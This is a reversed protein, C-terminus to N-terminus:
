KVWHVTNDGHQSPDEPPSSYSFVITLPLCFADDGAAALLTGTILQRCNAERWEIVPRGFHIAASVSHIPRTRLLLVADGLFAGVVVDLVCYLGTLPLLYLNGM